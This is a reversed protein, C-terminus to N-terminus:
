GSCHATCAQNAHQYLDAVASSVSPSQFQCSNLMACVCMRWIEGKEVNMKKEKKKVLLM